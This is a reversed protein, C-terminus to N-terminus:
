NRFNKGANYCKKSATDTNKVSQADIIAFTTKAKRGNKIRTEAVLKQLVLELISPKKGKKLCQEKNRWKRM